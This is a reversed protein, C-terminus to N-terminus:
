DVWSQCAGTEEHLGFLHCTSQLDNGHDQIVDALAGLFGAESWSAGDNVWRAFVERLATGSLAIAEDGDDRATAGSAYALQSGSPSWACGDNPADATAHGDFADAFLTTVRGVQSQFGDTLSKQDLNEDMGIGVLPDCWSVESAWTSGSVGFYDTGGAVQAAIFDAFGEAMYSEEKDATQDASGLIVQSWASQFALESESAMLDCMVFHGYEHVGVGRLPSDESVLVIDVAYLFEAGASVVFAPAFVAALVGQGASIFFNPSRGMCPAFSRGNTSVLDATDGVLITARAMSHGLVTRVYDYADTVQALVNIHEDRVRVLRYSDLSLTGLDAVCVVFDGLFKTVVAADNKTEICVKTAQGKAVEIRARGNEDITGFFAALGQRVHVRAGHPVVPAGERWASRMPVYDGLDFAPDTNLIRFELDLTIEGNVVRSGSGIASRVGEIIAETGEVIYYLLKRALWGVLEQQLECVQVGNVIRCRSIANFEFGQQGLYSPRLRSMDNTVWRAAYVPIRRFVIAEFGPRRGAQLDSIMQGRLANYVPGPIVSWHWAGRVAGNLAVLNRQAYDLELPFVPTAQVHAGLARLADAQLPESILVNAYWLTPKTANADEYADVPDTRRWDFSTYLTQAASESLGLSTATYRSYLCAGATWNVSSGSTSKVKYCYRVGSSTLANDVYENVPASCSLTAIRTYSGGATSKYLENTGHGCTYSVRMASGDTTLKKLSPPVAPTWPGGVVIASGTEDIELELRPDEDSPGCGGTLAIAFLALAAIELRFSTM